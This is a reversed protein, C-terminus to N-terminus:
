YNPSLAHGLYLWMYPTNYRSFAGPRTLTNEYGVPVLVLLIIYFWCVCNCVCVSYIDHAFKVLLGNGSLLYERSALLSHRPRPRGFSRVFNALSAHDNLSSRITQASYINTVKDASHIKHASPM